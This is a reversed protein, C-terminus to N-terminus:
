VNQYRLATDPAARGGSRGATDPAPGACRRRDGAMAEAGAPGEPPERAAGCTHQTPTGGQPRETRSRKHQCTLSRPPHLLDQETARVPTWDRSRKATHAHLSDHTELYLTLLFPYATLISGGQQFRLESVREWRSKYPFIHFHKTVFPQLSDLNALVVRVADELELTVLEGNIVEESCKSGSRIKFKYVHRGARFFRTEPLPFSFAQVPM